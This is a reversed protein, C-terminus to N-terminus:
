ADGGSCEGSTVYLSSDVDKGYRGRLRGLYEADVDKDPEAYEDHFTKIEEYSSAAAYGCVTVTEDVTRDTSEVMETSVNDNSSNALIYRTATEGDLKWTVKVVHDQSINSRSNVYAELTENHGNYYTTVASAQEASSTEERDLAPISEKVSDPVQQSLAYSVRDGFAKAASWGAEAAQRTTSEEDSFVGELVSGEEQAAVPAVAAFTVGTVLVALAVLARITLHRNM